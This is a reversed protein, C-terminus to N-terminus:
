ETQSDDIDEYRGERYIVDKGNCLWDTLELFNGAKPAVITEVHGDAFAVHGVYQQNRRHNFGISENGGKSKYLLCCDCEKVDNGGTLNVSPLAQGSKYAIAPIEAFMLLRDARAPAGANDSSASVEGSNPEYGFYANMQYSWGPNQTGVKRCEKVFAPCLYCDRNGGITKWIAGNTLAYTREDDDGNAFSCQAFKGPESLPYRAGKDLFSIWGRNVKVGVGDGQRSTDADYFQASQAPPYGAAIAANALNRMNTVCKVAIAKETSGSFAVVLTGTLIGIIAIVVLLEVLTFGCASKCEHFPHPILSSPHPTM